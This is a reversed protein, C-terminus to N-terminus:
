GDIRELAKKIALVSAEAYLGEPLNMRRFFVTGDDLARELDVSRPGTSYLQITAKRYVEGGRKSATWWALFDIVSSEPPAIKDVAKDAVDVM